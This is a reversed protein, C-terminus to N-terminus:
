TIEVNAVSDQEVGPAELHHVVPVVHRPVGAAAGRLVCEGQDLRPRHPLEPLDQGPHPQLPDCHGPGLHDVEAPVLCFMEVPLECMVRQKIVETLRQVRHVPAEISHSINDTVSRIDSTHTTMSSTPLLTSLFHSLIMESFAALSSASSM